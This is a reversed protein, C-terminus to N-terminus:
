FNWVSIFFLSIRSNQLEIKNIGFKLYIYNIMQDDYKDNDFCLDELVNFKM